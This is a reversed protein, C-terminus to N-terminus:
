VTFGRAHWLAGVFIKLHYKSVLSRHVQGILQGPLRLLAVGTHSPKPYDKIVSAM